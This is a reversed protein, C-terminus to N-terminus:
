KVLFIISFIEFNENLSFSDSPSRVIYLAGWLVEFESWSKSELLLTNNLPIVSISFSLINIKM